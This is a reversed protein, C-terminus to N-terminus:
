DLKIHNIIDGVDMVGVKELVDLQLNIQALDKGRQRASDMQRYMSGQLLYNYKAFGPPYQEIKLNISTLRRSVQVPAIYLDHIRTALAAKARLEPSTALLSPGKASYKDLLYQVIVESEPLSSGDPFVLLPMKGQPNLKMYAESQPMCPTSTYCVHRTGSGSDDLLTKNNYM